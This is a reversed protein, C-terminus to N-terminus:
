DKYYSSREKEIVRQLEETSYIPLSIEGNKVESVNLAVVDNVYNNQHLREVVEFLLENDIATLAFFEQLILKIPSLCTAENHKVHTYQQIYLQSIEKIYDLSFVPHPPLQIFVSEIKKQSITKLLAEVSVNLEHGKITLSNYNGDVLIGVHPPIRSAHLIVLWLQKTLKKVDNTESVKIKYPSEAMM